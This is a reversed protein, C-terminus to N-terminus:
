LMGRHNLHFEVCARALASLAKDRIAYSEVSNEISNFAVQLAKDFGPYYCDGGFDTGFGYLPVEKEEDWGGIVDICFMGGYYLIYVDFIDHRFDERKCNREINNMIEKPLM